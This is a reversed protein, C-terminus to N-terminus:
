KVVYSQLAKLLSSLVYVHILYYICLFIIVKLIYIYEKLYKAYRLAAVTQKMRLSDEPPLQFTVVVSLSVRVYMPTVALSKLVLYRFWLLDSFLLFYWLSVSSELCM